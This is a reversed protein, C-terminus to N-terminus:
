VRSKLYARWGGFHTIDEAGTVAYSEVLFCKVLDGDELEVTGIGLPSPIMEVFTAFELYDIEWVEVEIGAPMSENVRLLGPKPPVTGPLAYFRYCNKTRASRVLKANREMLQGNLALGSLHAGVVALKM